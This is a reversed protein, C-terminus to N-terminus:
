TEANEEIELLRGFFYKNEKVWTYYKDPLVGIKFLQTELLFRLKGYRPREDFEYSLAENCFDLLNIPECLQEPTANLKFYKMQQFSDESNIYKKM